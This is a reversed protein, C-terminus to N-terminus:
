KTVYHEFFDQPQKSISEVWYSANYDSDSLSRSWLKVATRQAKMNIAKTDPQAYADREGAAAAQSGDSRKEQRPKKAGVPGSISVLLLAAALAAVRVIGCLKM